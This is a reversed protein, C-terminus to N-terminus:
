SWSNRGGPDSRSLGQPLLGRSHGRLATLSLFCPGLSQTGLVLPPETTGRTGERTGGPTGGMDQFFWALLFSSPTSANFGMHKRVPDRTAQAWAHPGAGLSKGFAHHRPLPWFLVRTYM